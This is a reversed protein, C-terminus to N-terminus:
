FMFFILIYTIIGIYIKLISNGGLCPGFALAWVLPQLPLGLSSESLKVVVKIMMTTVPISDVFASTIASVWLIIIIAVALRSGESVSLIIQESIHGIWTILGLRDVAEMLVFMAAFFLLTPWEIRSMIADMDHKETIIILLIVGLLASWGLSLRNIEPISEIFFLCIIFLLVFCSKILLPKNKIPFQLSYRNIAKAM